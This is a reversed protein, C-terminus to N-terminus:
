GESPARRGGLDFAALRDNQLVCEYRRRLHSQFGVYYDLWWFAPSAVVLHTAGAGRLRELERIAAEDDAPRSVGGGEDEMFRVLRRDALRERDLGQEDVVIACRGPLVLARLEDEALRQAAQTWDRRRNGHPFPVGPVAENLFPCLKEWGDGETLRMVLLQASPIRLLVRENHERYRKRFLLEHASASGYVFHRLCWKFPDDERKRVPSHVDHHYRISDWWADEDRLTLICKADPYALLLEEFFVAAPIDLVADVDDYRRFDPHAEAGCVVDNLRRDDYHLSRYGLIGLARHLSTTGTKSLGVGLVRTGEGGM